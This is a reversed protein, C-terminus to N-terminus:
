RALCRTDASFTLIATNTCSITSALWAPTTNVASGSVPCRVPEDHLAHAAQAFSQHLPCNLRLPHHNFPSCPSHQRGCSFSSSEDAVRSFKHSRARRVSCRKPAGCSISHACRSPLTNRNCDRGIVVLAGALVHSSRCIQVLKLVPSTIGSTIVGIVHDM